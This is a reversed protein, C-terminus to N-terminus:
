PRLRSLIHVTARTKQRVQLDRIAQGRLHLTEIQVDLAESDGTNVIMLATKKRLRNRREDAFEVTISPDSASPTRGLSLTPLTPLSTSSKERPKDHRNGLSGKIRKYGFWAVLVMVSEALILVLILKQNILATM